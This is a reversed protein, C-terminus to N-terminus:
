EDRKQLGHKLFVKIFYNEKISELERIIDDSFINCLYAGENTEIAEDLQKILEESAIFNIDIRLGKLERNDLWLVKLSM